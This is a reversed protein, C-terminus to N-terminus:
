IHDAGVCQDKSARRIRDEDSSTRDGGRPDRYRSDDVSRRPDELNNHQTSHHGRTAESYSPPPTEVRPPRIYNDSSSDDDYSTSPEHFSYDIRPSWGIHSQNINDTITSCGQGFITALNTTNYYNQHINQNNNMFLHNFEQLINPALQSAEDPACANTQHNERPTGNVVKHTHEYPHVCLCIYLCFVTMAITTLSLVAVVIGADM